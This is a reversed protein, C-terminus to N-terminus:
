GDHGRVMGTSRYREPPLTTLLPLALQDNLESFMGRLLRGEQEGPLAVSVPCIRRPVTEGPPTTCGMRAHVSQARSGPSGPIHGRINRVPTDSSPSHDGVLTPVGFDATIDGMRAFM